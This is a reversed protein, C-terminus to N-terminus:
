SRLVCIELCVLRYNLNAATFIYSSSLIANILIPFGILLMLQIQFKGFKLEGLIADLDFIDQSM